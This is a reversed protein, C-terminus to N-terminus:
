LGDNPDKVYGKFLKYTNTSKSNQVPINLGLTYGIAKSYPFGMIESTNNTM